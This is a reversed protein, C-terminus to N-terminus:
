ISSALHTKRLLFKLMTEQGIQIDARGEMGARLPCPSSAQRVPELQPRSPQITIEYHGVLAPPLGASQQQTTLHTGTTDSAIAGVNGPLVGYDTYPCSRLRIQVPQGPHVQNVSANPIWAKVVLSEAQSDEQPRVIAPAKVKVTYPLFWCGALVGGLTMLAAWGGGVMLPHPSPLFEEAHVQLIRSGQPNSSPLPELSSSLPQSSTDKVPMFVSLNM